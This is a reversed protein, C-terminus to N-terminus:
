VLNRCPTLSQPATASFYAGMDRLQDRLRRVGDLPANAQLDGVLGRNPQEAQTSLM